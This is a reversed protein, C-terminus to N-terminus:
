KRRPIVLGAFVALIALVLVPIPLGTNQMGITNSAANVVNAAEVTAFQISSGLTPDYTSTTVTPNVNFSGSKLVKVNIKLWPDLILVTGLNWTVTRTAPDYTAAPYGPETELSVFEMGEPIVYTFVVENAPDPGKNGLKFNLTITEGVTPNNKSVTTLVYISSQNVKLTGNGTAAAYQTDANFIATINYNGGVFNIIYPLTAVGSADTTANGVTVDNVKFIIIKGSIPANSHATDVLTAKLNVTKGKDGTISEVTLSTPIANVTLNNVGNSSAYGVTGNFVATIYNLYTGVDQTINYNWQAIGSANTIGTGQFVNNVYFNVSKGVLAVNNITDWLQARLTTEYGKYGSVPDVTLSTTINNVTLAGTSTSNIYTGNGAYTANIAYIGAAMNNIIYNWTAQGTSNTTNTGVTIGNVIFTIIAGSIPANNSTRKLTATIPVNDGNYGSPSNVTLTTPIANVTLLQTSSSSNRYYGWDSGDPYLNGYFFTQVNKTGSTLPTYTFTATGRNSGSGATTATGVETGDVFFHITQGNIGSSGSTLRSTLTVQNGVTTTTPNVNLNLATSDIVLEDSDSSSWYMQGLWQPGFYARFQRNTNSTVTYNFTANGNNLQRTALTTWPLYNETRTQFDVELGDPVPTNTGDITVRATLTVNDNSNSSNHSLTLSTDTDEAASAGGCIILAFLVTITLMLIRKQIKQM